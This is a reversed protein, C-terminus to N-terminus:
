LSRAELSRPTRKRSELLETSLRAGISPHLRRKVRADGTTFERGVTVGRRTGTGLRVASRGSRTMGADGGGREALLWGGARLRVRGALRSAEEPRYCESFAAQVTSSPENVTAQLRGLPFSGRRPQRLVDAGGFADQGDPTRAKGVHM